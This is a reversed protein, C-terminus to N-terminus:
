SSGTKHWNPNCRWCRDIPNTAKCGDVGLHRRTANKGVLTEGVLQNFDDTLDEPNPNYAKLAEEYSETAKKQLYEDFTAINAYAALPLLICLLLLSLKYNALMM